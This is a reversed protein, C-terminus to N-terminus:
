KRTEIEDYYISFGLITIPANAELQEFQLMISDGENNNERSNLNFVLPIPRAEYEDWNAVDWYALDWLSARIKTPSDMTERIQSMEKALNRYNSWYSLTLEKSSQQDIYVVIKQFSKAVTPTKCDFAKTRYTFELAEGADSTNDYHTYIYGANDGVLFVESHSSDLYSTGGYPNIGKLSDMMFVGDIVANSSLGNLVQGTTLRCDLKLQITNVGLTRNSITWVIQNKKRIFAGWGQNLTIKNLEGDIGFLSEILRSVYTPKDTGSWLYIGRYDVWSIFGGTPVVLTQNACGVSDLFKLQVDYAGTDSDYSGTGTVTWAEDDKFVVLIEETAATNVPNYGIVGLATIPGGTPVTIKFGTPWSEPKDLDSFSITSNSSTVLHRKFIALTKYTGSDLPSNDLLVNGSRPVNQSTAVSVNGLDVYTPTGVTVQAVLTGATFASSGGVSSRYVYWKDYKTTDVGTPFTLTVKDTLNAVSASQDLAANSLAQTSAKRLAIAYYYTGTAAFSGGTLSVQATFTGSPASVGNQTANTGNYGILTSAGGGAMWLLAASATNFNTMAVPVTSGVGFFDTGATATDETINTFTGASTDVTQVKTGGARVVTKTGSATNHVGVGLTVLQSNPSSNIKTLGRRKQIGGTKIYDYNYGGTAQGDKVFFPSDTINLGQTNTFCDFRPM